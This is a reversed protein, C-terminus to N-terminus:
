FLTYIFPMVPAGGALLAFLALAAIVLLVPALWWRKGHRVFGLVEGFLSRSSPQKV